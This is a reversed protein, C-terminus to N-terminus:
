RLSVKLTFGGIPTREPSFQISPTIKASFSENIEFERLHGSIYADAVNILYFATAILALYDRNRHFRDEYQKLSSESFRGPLVMEFRNETDPRDDLEAIYSNRFSHYIENNNRILHAFIMFGGYIFPVKFVQGNYAQGLGPLVASLIASKAPDVKSIEKFYNGSDQNLFGTDLKYSDQAYSVVSGSLLFFFLILIKFKLYISYEISIM